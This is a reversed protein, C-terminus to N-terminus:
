GGGSVRRKEEEAGSSHRKVPSNQKGFRYVFTFFCARSDRRYSWVERFNRFAITAGPQNSYFLDTFAVKLTAKGDFLKKQAGFNAFWVPIMDYYGLVAASQGVASFEVSLSRSLVISTTANVDYATMGKHLQTNAIDGIFRNYYINANVIQQWWKTLQIPYAVSVGFYHMSALNKDTQRSINPYVEDAELTETIVNTASSATFTTLFKQRFTHAVEVAYTLTPNLYPNGMRYNTPDLYYKFSNLQNYGPRDIRRSLTAGIEHRDNAHWQLALSPFIQLYDRNFRKGTIKQDGTAHTHEARVGIQVSWKQWDRSTNIYGANINEGYVFHNSKGTDQMDAGNSRDYFLPMNDSTVFSTKAGAEIKGKSAIVKTYDAKVARIQTIGSLDGFLLYDPMFRLYSADYYGTTYLQNTKTSYRAYDVDISLASGNSDIDYKLYGNMTQNFWVDKSTIATTFFTTTNGSDVRSTNSGAPRFRTSNGSGSVGVTVKKSINYDIGLGGTHNFVPFYTNNSQDYSTKLENNVYFQRQINLHSFGRREGSNFNLNLALKGARYNMSGGANAKLYVGQGYSANLSGNLGAKKGKKTVINIIGASGAADYRAGPNSILEIREISASQMGKLMNALDGGAIPIIKGDIMITVGPRGKLTIRDNQDVMVGPSRSIVEFVSSGTNVISNEVNVILKDAKVEILPKQATVNVDGLSHSQKVMVIDPYRIDDDGAVVIGPSQQAYGILSCRLLYRGPALGLIDFHGTSSSVAAHVFASDQERLLMVNVGDLPQGTASVVKGSLNAANTRTALLVPFCLFCVYYVLQRM